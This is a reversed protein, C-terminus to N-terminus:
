PAPGGGMCEATGSQCESLDTQARSLTIGTSSVESEAYVVDRSDHKLDQLDTYRDSVDQVEPPTGADDLDWRLVQLDRMTTSAQAIDSYITNGLTNLSIISAQANSIEALCATSTASYCDVLAELTTTASILNNRSSTKFNYYKTEQAIDNDVEGKLRQTMVALQAATDAPPPLYELIGKDGATILRNYIYEALAAAIEDIEDAVALSTFTAGFSGSLQDGILKGPTTALYKTCKNEYRTCGTDDGEVCIDKRAGPACKKMGLFGQNMVSETEAEKKAKWMVADLEDSTTLYAGYPNNQPNDVMKIFAGWGGHYFHSYFNEFNDIVDDMTCEMNIDWPQTRNLMLYLEWRFPTCLFDYVGPSLYKGMFYGSAQNAVDRGFQELDPIFLPNGEFGSKIWNVINDTIQRIAMKAVMWALPDLVYEKTWDAHAKITQVISEGTEVTQEYVLPGVEVTSTILAESKRPYILFISSSIILIIEIVSIYKM